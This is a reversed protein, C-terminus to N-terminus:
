ATTYADYLTQAIRNGDADRADVRLSVPTGSAARPLRVRFRGGDRREVHARQWTAGGDISTSVALSEVRGGDTGTVQDVRFTATRDTPRNQTDLPLDYDVVLLPILADGSTSSFTWATSSRGPYPGIGFQEYSLRYTGAEAPLEFVKYWQDTTGVVQGDRELTLTSTHPDACGVGDPRDQFPSLWVELNDGVRRVPTPQCFSAGMPGGVPGPWMPRDLWDLRTRSGAEYAVGADMSLALNDVPVMEDGARFFGSGDVISQWTVGATVYDTRREPLPGQTGTSILVESIPYRHESRAGTGDPDRYFRQDLRAMQRQEAQSLLPEPDLASAYPEVVDYVYRSAAVTVTVEDGAAGAALLATASSGGATLVPVEAWRDPFVPNLTLHSRQEDVFTLLGVGAELARRTVAAREASDAPLRVVAMIEAGPPSGAAGSLDAGDGADVAVYSREGIALDDNSAATV